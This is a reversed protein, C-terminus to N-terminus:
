GEKQIQTFHTPLGMSKAQAELVVKAVDFLKFEQVLDLAEKESRAHITFSYTLTLGGSCEL